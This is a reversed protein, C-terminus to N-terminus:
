HVQNQDPLEDHLTSLQVFSNETIIKRHNKKIKKLLADIEAYTDVTYYEIEESDKNQEVSHVSLKYM